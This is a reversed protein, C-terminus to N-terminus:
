YTAEHTSPLVSHYTGEIAKIDANGDEVTDSKFWDAVILKGGKGLVMEANKFFRGKGPIHSLAECIWVVDFEEKQEKFREGMTEADMEVFKVKGNGL